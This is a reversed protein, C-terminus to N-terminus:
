FAILDYILKYNGKILIKLSSSHNLEYSQVESAKIVQNLIVLDEQKVQVTLTDSTSMNGITFQQNYIATGAVQAFVESIDLVQQISDTNGTYTHNFVKTAMVAVPKGRFLLTDDNVVTLDDLIDKNDHWHQYQKLGFKEDCQAKTYADVTGGGGGGTSSITGDDEITIGYGAILTKQKQALQQNLVTTTTYNTLDSINKDIFNLDNSLESVKSPVGINTRAQLKQADTWTQPKVAVFTSTDIGSIKSDLDSIQTNIETKTYADEIGYGQLTTSKDAKNELSSNIASIDSNIGQIATQVSGVSSDLNEIKASYVSGQLADINSRITTKQEETFTQQTATIFNGQTMGKTIFANNEAVDFTTNDQTVPLVMFDVKNLFDIENNSGIQPTGDMFKVTLVEGATADNEIVLEKTITPFELTKNKLTQKSDLDVYGESVKSVAQSVMQKTVFNKVDAEDYSTTAETSPLTLFTTNSLIDLGNNTALQATNNVFSVDFTEGVSEDGVIHLKDKVTADVLTKNSVTQASDLDTYNTQVQTTLNELGEKTAKMDSSLVTVSQKLTNTDAQIGQVQDGLESQNNKVTTLSDDLELVTSELTNVTASDAKSSLETNLQDIFQRKTTGLLEVSM